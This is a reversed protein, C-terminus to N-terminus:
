GAAPDAPFSILASFHMWAVTMLFCLAFKPDIGRRSQGAWGWHVAGNELATMEESASCPQIM